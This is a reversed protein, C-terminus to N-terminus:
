RAVDLMCHDLGEALGLVLAKPEEHHDALILERVIYSSTAVRLAQIYELRAHWIEIMVTASTNPRENM